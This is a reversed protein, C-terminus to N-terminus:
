SVLRFGNSVLGQVPTIDGVAEIGGNEMVSFCADFVKDESVSPWLKNFISLTVIGSPNPDYPILAKSEELLHFCTPKKSMPDIPGLPLKECLVFPILYTMINVGLRNPKIL